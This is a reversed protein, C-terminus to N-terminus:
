GGFVAYRALLFLLALLLTFGLTVVLATRREGAMTYRGPHPYRGRAPHPEAQRTTGRRRRRM